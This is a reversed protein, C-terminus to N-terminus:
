AGLFLLRKAAEDAPGGSNQAAMERTGAMKEASQSVLPLGILTYLAPLLASDPSTLQAGSLIALPKQWTTVSPNHAAYEILDKLLHSGVVKARAGSEIWKKWRRAIGEVNRNSIDYWLAQRERDTVGGVLQMVLDETLPKGLHQWAEMYAWMTRFSGGSEEALLELVKPDASPFFRTMVSAIKSPAINSFHLTLCRNRIAPDIADGDTTCFIVISRKSETPMRELMTLFSAIADKGYLHCEDIIVIRRRGGFPQSQLFPKLAERVFAVSRDAAGDVYKLDHTIGRSFQDCVRCADCPDQTKENPNECLLRKSLLLAASTKGTGTTGTFLYGPKIDEAHLSNVLVTVPIEQGEVEAWTKPRRELALTSSPVQEAVANAM